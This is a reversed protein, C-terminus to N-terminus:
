PGRPTQSPVAYPSTVAYHVSLFQIIINTKKNTKQKKKKKQVNLPEQM